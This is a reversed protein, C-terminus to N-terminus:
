RFESLGVAVFILGLVVVVGRGFWSTLAGASSGDPAKNTQVKKTSPVTTDGIGASTAADPISTQAKVSPLSRIAGVDNAIANNTNSWPQGLGFSTIDFPSGDAQTVITDTL